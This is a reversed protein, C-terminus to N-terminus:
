DWVNRADDGILLCIGPDRTPGRFTVDWLPEVTGGLRSPLAARAAVKVRGQPLHEFKEVASRRHSLKVIKCISVAWPQSEDRERAESCGMV